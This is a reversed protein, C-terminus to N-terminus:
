TRDKKRDAQGRKKQKAHEDLFYAQGPKGARKTKGENLDQKGVQKRAV